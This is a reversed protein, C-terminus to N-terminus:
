SALVPMQRSLTSILKTRRFMGGALLVRLNLEPSNILIILGLLVLGWPWAIDVYSMRGTLLAPLSALVVFLLLQLIGNVWVFDAFVPLQLLLVFGMAFPILPTFYKM